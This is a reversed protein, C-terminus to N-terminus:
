AVQVFRGSEEVSEEAAICSRAVALVDQTSIFPEDGNELAAIMDPLFRDIGPEPLEPTYAGKEDSIISLSDSSYASLHASGKTGMVIVRTDGWSPAKSSTLWDATLLGCSGDSMTYSAQVHDAAFTQEVDALEEAARGQNIAGYVASM